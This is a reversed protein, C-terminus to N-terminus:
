TNISNWNIKDSAAAIQLEPYQRLLKRAAEDGSHFCCLAGAINEAQNESALLRAMDELLSANLFGTVPRWIMPDIDRSAAWREHAYDSIIRTLEANSRQDVGIIDALNRGMFAAKLYMQNWQQDNFFQPPYPNSLAIADFVPAINTRLAEVGADRFSGADPLLSLYKLFTVLEGQDAVQIIQSVKPEYFERDQELVYILLYIRSM